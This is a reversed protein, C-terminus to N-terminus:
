NSMISKTSSMMSSFSIQMSDISKSKSKGWVGRRNIRPKCSREKTDENVILFSPIDNYISGIEDFEDSTRIGVVDDMAFTDISRASIQKETTISSSDMEREDNFRRMLFTDNKTINDFVSNFKTTQFNSIGQEPVSSYTSSTIDVPLSTITSKQPQQRESIDSTVMNPKEDHFHTMLNAVDIENDDCVKEPRSDKETLVNCYKENSSINKLKQDEQPPVYYHSTENRKSPQLAPVSLDTAVCGNNENLVNEQFLSKLMSVEESSTPRLIARSVSGTQVKSHHDTGNNTPFAHNGVFSSKYQLPHNHTSGNTLYGPYCSNCNNKHYNNWNLPHVQSSSPPLIAWNQGNGPLLSSRNEFNYRSSAVMGHCCFAEPNKMYFEVSNYFSSYVLGSNPYPYSTHQRAMLDAAIKKRIDPAGERLAQSVKVVAREEGIDNYRTDSENKELFRGPPDLTYIRSVLELAIERKERKNSSLYRYKSFSIMRRYYDNGSHNQSGGGRGCLIDNINPSEINNQPWIPNRVLVPIYSM